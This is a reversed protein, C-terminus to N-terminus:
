EVSGDAKYPEMMAMVGGRRRQVEPWYLEEASRFLRGHM